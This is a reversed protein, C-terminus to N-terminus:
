CYEWLLREKTIPHKGASFIRGACCDSIGTKYINYSRTAEAISEFEEGTTICRVRKKNVPIMKSSKLAAIKANYECWGADNGQNLYKCVTSRSVYLKDAIIQTDIIGQNWLDCATKINSTCAKKHSQVWNVNKFNYFQSLLSKSISNKLYPLTSIRADIVIYQKIKNEDALQKKIEDIIYEERDTNKYFGRGKIHQGGNVEIIINKDPIYFDYRYKNSWKFTKQYKFSIDLQKLIDIMFKEPYSTGDSCDACGNHNDLSHERVTAIKGCNLCEYTYAKESNGSKTHLRTYKLIKVQGSKVDITQGIKYKYEKTQVGILNGIHCNAFSSVSIKSIQKKYKLTLIFAKIDYGLITIDGCIDNYKFKVKVGINAKWNIKDKYLGSTYRILNDLYVKKIIYM